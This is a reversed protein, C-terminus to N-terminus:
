SQASQYTQMVADIAVDGSPYQSEELPTGAELLLQVVRPFDGDPHRKAVLCSHLAFGLPTSHYRPDRQDLPHGREILLAVLEPDGCWAANHLPRYGHNFEPADVQFGLDLMLRVAERNLNTEWCCKALLSRDEDDLKTLLLPSRAVIEEALRRNALACAVLLQQRPPTHSMLFDYIELHQRRHAVEQPSQNFGLTWQYITGGRGQFGVGPFPGQNNGIRYTTCVPADRVLKRALELDGLGSAMFVDPRAGQTLLFRTVGPVDGIRWQAPTSDHDDDRADLEAGREVLLQAIELNRSFHLPTGGDGGKSHILEPRQDLLARLRGVLGLGAAAHPTLLAGREVLHEAVVPSVKNLWFGSGWWESVMSVSLGHQLFLDAMNVSRFAALFQTPSSCANSLLGPLGGLAQGLLERVGALDDAEMKRELIALEQKTM